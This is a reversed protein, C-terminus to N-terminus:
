FNQKKNKKKKKKNIKGKQITFKSEFANQKSPFIRSASAVNYDIIGISFLILIHFNQNPNM